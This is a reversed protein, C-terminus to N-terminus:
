TADAHRERVREVVQDAFTADLGLQRHLDQRVKIAADRLYQSVLNLSSQRELYAAQSPPPPALLPM